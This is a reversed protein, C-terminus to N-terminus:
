NMKGAGNNNPTLKDGSMTLKHNIWKKISEMRLARVSDKRHRIVM